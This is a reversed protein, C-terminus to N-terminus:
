RILTLDGKYTNWEGNPLMIEILYFYVGQDVYEGQHRGDWGKEKDFTHFINEGYRNFISFNVLTWPGTAIVNFVDNVGDGNPTFANPILIETSYKIAIEAEATGMCGEENFGIVTYVTHELPRAIPNSLYPSSLTLEPSWTYYAAGSAILQIEDGYYITAFSPNVNITASNSVNITIDKESECGISNTVKVKLPYSGMPASFRVTNNTNAGIYTTPTWLYQYIDNAPTVEPSITISDGDSLCVSIEDELNIHPVDKIIVLVSDRFTGCGNTMELWVWGPSSTTLSTGSSNNNWLLTTGGGPIHDPAITVEEGVCLHIDQGLSFVPPTGLTVEITDSLICVGNDVTLWYTGPTTINYSNATDTSNWVNIANTFPSTLILTDGLCITTDGGLNLVTDMPLGFFVDDIGLDTFGVSRRSEIELLVTTSNGSNWPVCMWIWEPCCPTTITGLDLELADVGNIRLGVLPAGGSTCNTSRALDRVWVGFLYDTNPQVDLLDQTGVPKTPDWPKWAVAPNAPSASFPTDFWMFLGGIGGITHDWQRESGSCAGYNRSEIILYTGGGSPATVFNNDNVFGPPIGGLPAPTQFDPNYNALLNIDGPCCQQGISSKSLVLLFVVILLNLIAFRKFSTIKM